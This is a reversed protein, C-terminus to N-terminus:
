VTMYYKSTNTYDRANFILLYKYPIINYLTGGSVSHSRTQTHKRLTHSSLKLERIKKAALIKSKKVHLDDKKSNIEVDFADYKEKLSALVKKHGNATEELKCIQNNEEEDATYMRHVQRTYADSKSQLRTIEDKTQDINACLNELYKPSNIKRNKLRDELLELQKKKETLEQNLRELVEQVTEMSTTIKHREKQHKAIKDDLIRIAAERRQIQPFLEERKRQLKKIVEMTKGKQVNSNITEDWLKRPYDKDDNSWKKVTECLHSVASLCGDMAKTVQPGDALFTDIFPAKLDTYETFSTELDVFGKELESRYNVIRNEYDVAPKLDKKDTEEILSVCYKELHGSVCAQLNKQAYGIITEFHAARDCLMHLQDYETRNRTSRAGADKLVKKFERYTDIETEAIDLNNLIGVASEKCREYNLGNVKYTNRLIKVKLLIQRAVVYVNRVDPQLSLPNDKQRAIRPSIGDKRPTVKERRPTNRVSPSKAYTAM